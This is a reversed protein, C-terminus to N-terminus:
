TYKKHVSGARYIFVASFNEKTNYSQFGTFHGYTFYYAHSNKIKKKFYCITKLM